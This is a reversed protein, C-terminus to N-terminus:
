FLTVIDRTNNSFQLIFFHGPWSSSLETAEILIFEFEFEFQKIYGIKPIIRFHNLKRKNKM